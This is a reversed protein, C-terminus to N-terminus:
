SPMCNVCSAGPMPPTGSMSRAMSNGCNICCNWRGDNACCCWRKRLVCASPPADTVLITWDALQLTEESITQQRRQADRLLDERRKDAVEKPVRLMLLRMPLRERAGVLVRLEKM